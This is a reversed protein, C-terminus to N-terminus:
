GVVRRVLDVVAATTADPRDKQPAHGCSVLVLSTYPGRVGREIAEIQALTGYPDTESQVVLVPVEIGPLYEELNWDRFGPDLWARNWGWFAGDVNEGHHRALRDRLDGHLYAERALTIAEVSIDECFVHPALLALGLLRPSGERKSIPSGAYILAISAGDSHGLLIADRVGAAALVEPLSHLAEDHMYRLPRPPVVPDSAGYGWRSYVLVGLGTEKALLAPWDRWGAVCGLGEHLMVITPAADPAPGHWVAELRHDAATLPFPKM